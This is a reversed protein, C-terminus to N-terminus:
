RKAASGGIISAIVILLLVAWWAIAFTGGHWTVVDWM